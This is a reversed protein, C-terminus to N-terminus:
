RDGAAPQVEGAAGASGGGADRERNAAAVARQVLRVGDADVCVIRYVPRDIIRPVERTIERVITRRETDREAAARDVAQAAVAIRENAAAIRDIKKQLARAERAEGMRVGYLFAGVLLLLAAIAGGLYLYLRM